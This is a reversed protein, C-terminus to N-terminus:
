PCAFFPPPLLFGDLAPVGLLLDTVAVFGRVFRCHLVSAGVRPESRSFPRLCLRAARRAPALGTAHHDLVDRRDAEVRTKRNSAFRFWAVVVGFVLAAVLLPWYTELLPLM